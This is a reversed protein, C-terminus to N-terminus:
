IGHDRCGALDPCAYPDESLVNGIQEIIAAQTKGKDYKAVTVLQISWPSLCDFGLTCVLAHM